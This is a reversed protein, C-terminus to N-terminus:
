IIADLKDFYEIYKKKIKSNAESFSNYSGSPNMAFEYYEMYVVHMEKIIKNIKKIEQM